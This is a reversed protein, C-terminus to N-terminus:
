GIPSSPLVFLLVAAYHLASGGMVFLHWVTHFFRKQQLVYFIVGLTYALGGAGMLALGGTPLSEWLPEIALIALWGMGLYLALSLKKFRGFAFLKYLIGVLALGWVIGFLTFGWGGRLSVLMFPTYTGAILLYIATHDFVRLWRKVRPTQVSHYLTSALYLTVLTAGYISSSVIHLMEGTTAAKIVLVVLGIIALVLGLGHTIANAIEEGLTQLRKEKSNTAEAPNSNATSAIDTPM